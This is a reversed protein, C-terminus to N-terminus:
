PVLILSSYQVLIFAHWACGYNLLKLSGLHNSGNGKKMAGLIESVIFYAHDEIHATTIHTERTLCLFSSKIEELLCHVLWVATSLNSVQYGIVRGVLNDQLHMCTDQLNICTFLTYTSINNMRRKLFRIPRFTVVMTSALTCLTCHVRVYM